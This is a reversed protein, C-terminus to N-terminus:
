WVSISLELVTIHLIYIGNIHQEAGSEHRRKMYLICFRTAKVPDRHLLTVSSGMSVRRIALKGTLVVQLLSLQSM